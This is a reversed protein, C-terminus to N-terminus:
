LKGWIFIRAFDYDYSIDKIINNNEDVVKFYGYGKNQLLILKNIFEDLTM